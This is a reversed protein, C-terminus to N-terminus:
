HHPLINRLQSKSSQKDYSAVNNYIHCQSKESSKTLLKIDSQCLIPSASTLWETLRYIERNYLFKIDWERVIYFYCTPCYKSVIFIINRLLRERLLKLTNQFNKNSDTIKIPTTIHHNRIETMKKLTNTQMKCVPSKRRGARLM